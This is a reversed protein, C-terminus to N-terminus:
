FIFNYHYLFNGKIGNIIEGVYKGNSYNLEGNYKNNSLFEINKNLDIWDFKPEIIIKSETFKKRSIKLRERASPIRESVAPDIKTLIKHIFEKFEYKNMDIPANLATLMGLRHMYFHTEILLLFNLFNNNYWGLPNYGKQILLPVFSKRKQVVYDAERKCNESEKYKGSICILVFYAQDIADLNPSHMDKMDIWCKKGFQELANQIRICDDRSEKSYSIMVHKKNTNKSSNAM